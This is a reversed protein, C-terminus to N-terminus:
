PLRKRVSTSATPADASEREITRQRKPACSGTAPVISVVSDTILHKEDFESDYLRCVVPYSNTDTAIM